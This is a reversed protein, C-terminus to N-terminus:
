RMTFSTATFAAHQANFIGIAGTTAGAPITVQVQTNSIVRVPVGHANGVWAQNLGTFGAGNITVVTGVGGSAPSFTSITPQPPATPSPTPAPTPTPAPASAGTVKFQTATYAAFKLNFIGISGGKAGAPITVQVQKDSLVRYVANRTQGVWAKNIGKFGTGNITVVTGVPGSAPSFGSIKPQV